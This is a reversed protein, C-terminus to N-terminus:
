ILCIECVRPFVIPDECVELGDMSNQFHEFNCFVSRNHAIDNYIVKSTDRPRLFSKPSSLIMGLSCTDSIYYEGLSSIPVLLSELNIRAKNGRNIVPYTRVRYRSMTVLTSPSTLLSKLM